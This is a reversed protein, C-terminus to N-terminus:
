APGSSNGPATLLRWLGRLTKLNWASLPLEKLCARAFNKDRNSARLFQHNTWDNLVRRYGPHSSFCAYTKLVAEHMLRLNKVTNTPHVRYYALIDDMIGILWGREAIKLEVYLDELRIEPNFGGIDLLAEKRFLLTATAPGQQTGLFLAEFDLLREPHQRQRKRPHHEGREDIKIINGAAIGVKPHKLLWPLQREFRDPLMIDDSGFPAIFEGRARAIGANLTRSLGQNTQAQFFFGYDDALKQIIAVSGDSSGDDYVLLEIPSYTQELVSRISAEIYAAHNYSSIIVTVLPQTM